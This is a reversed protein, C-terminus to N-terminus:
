ISLETLLTHEKLLRDEVEGCRRFFYPAKSGIYKQNNDKELVVLPLSNLIVTHKKEYFPTVLLHHLCFECALGVMVFGFMMMNPLYETLLQINLALAFFVAAALVYRFRFAIEIGRFLLSSQLPLTTLEYFTKVILTLHTIGYDHERYVAWLRRQWVSERRADLARTKRDEISWINSSNIYNLRANEISNIDEYRWEELGDCLRLFLWEKDLPLKEVNQTYRGDSVLHLVGWEIQSLIVNLGRALSLAFIISSLMIVFAVIASFFQYVFFTIRSSLTNSRHYANYTWRNRWCEFYVDVLSEAFPSYGSANFELRQKLLRFNQIPKRASYRIMQSYKYRSDLYSLFQNALKPHSECIKKLQSSETSQFHALLAFVWVPDEEIPIELDLQKQYFKFLDNAQSRDLRPSISALQELIQKMNLDVLLFYRLFVM